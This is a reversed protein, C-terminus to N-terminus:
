KNLEQLIRNLLVIYRLDMSLHKILFYILQCPFTWYFIELLEFVRACPKYNFVM